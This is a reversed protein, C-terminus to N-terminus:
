TTNNNNIAQPHRAPPRPYLSYTTKSHSKSFYKTAKYINNYKNKRMRDIASLHPSQSQNHQQETRENIEPIPPPSPQPLPPPHRTIPVHIRFSIGSPCYISQHFGSIQTPKCVSLQVLVPAKSYATEENHSRVAADAATLIM